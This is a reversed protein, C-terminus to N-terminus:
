TWAVSAQFNAIRKNDEWEQWYIHQLKALARVAIFLQLACHEQGANQACQLIQSHSESFAVFSQCSLLCRLVERCSDPLLRACSYLVLTCTIGVGSPRGGPLQPAQLFSTFPTPPPPPLICVALRETFTELTGFPINWKWHTARSLEYSLYKPQTGLSLVWSYVFVAM